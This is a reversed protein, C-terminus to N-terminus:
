TFKSYSNNLFPLISYSCNCKAGNKFLFKKRPFNLDSRIQLNCRFALNLSRMVPFFAILIDQFIEGRRQRKQLINQGSSGRSDFGCTSNRGFIQWRFRPIKNSEKAMPVKLKGSNILKLILNSGRGKQESARVAKLSMFDEM